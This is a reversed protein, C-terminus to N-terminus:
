HTESSCQWLFYHLTYQAIDLHSYDIKTSVIVAKRSIIFHKLWMKKRLGEGRLIRTQNSRPPLAAASPNLICKGQCKRFCFFASPLDYLIPHLPFSKQSWSRSSHCCLFLHLKAGNNCLRLMRPLTLSIHRRVNGSYFPTCVMSIEYIFFRIYWSNGYISSSLCHSM